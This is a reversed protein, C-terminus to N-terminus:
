GTDKLQSHCCSVILPIFDINVIDHKFGYCKFSSGASVVLSSLKCNKNLIKGKPRFFFLPSVTLSFLFFKLKKDSIIYLNTGIVFNNKLRYPPFITM